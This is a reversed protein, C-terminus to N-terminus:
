FYPPYSPLVILDRDASSKRAIPEPGKGTLFLAEAELRSQVTESSDPDSTWFRGAAQWSITRLSQILSM